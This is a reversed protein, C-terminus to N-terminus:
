DVQSLFDALIASPTHRLDCSPNDKERETVYSGACQTDEREIFRLALLSYKKGAYYM